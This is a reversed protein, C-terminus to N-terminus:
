SMEQLTEKVFKLEDFDDLRSDYRDDNGAFYDYESDEDDENSGDGELEMEKM